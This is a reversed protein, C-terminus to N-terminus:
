FCPRFAWRPLVLHPSVQRLLAQIAAPVCSLLFSLTSAAASPAHMLGTKNAALTLNAVTAAMLLQFLTKKRGFYRARRVGLQMLRALRHEAAQRLQRYPAYDASQQFARAQQIWAEQPHLSITRGKGPGARTCSSRQPCAACVDPDFQFVERQYSRGTRDKLTGNPV